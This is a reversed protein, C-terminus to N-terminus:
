EFELIDGTEILEYSKTSTKGMDTHLHQDADRESDSTYINWDEDITVARQIVTQTNSKIGAIVKRSLLEGQLSYSALVYEYVLLQARWYVIAVFDNTEPLRFCPVIEELTDKNQPGIFREIELPHLATNDRSFEIQSEPSLLIPLRIVPFKHIFDEFSVEPHKESM